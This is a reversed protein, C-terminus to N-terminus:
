AHNRVLAADAGGVLPASMKSIVLPDLVLCLTADNAIIATVEPSTEAFSPPLPLLNSRPVDVIEISGAAYLAAGRGHGVVFLIRHLEAGVMPAPGLSRLVDFYLEDGRWDAASTIREVHSAPVSWHARPDRVIVMAVLSTPPVM